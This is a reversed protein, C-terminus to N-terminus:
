LRLYCYLDILRQPKGSIRFTTTKARNFLRNQFNQALFQAFFFQFHLEYPNFSALFYSLKTGFMIKETQGYFDSLEALNQAPTREHTRSM